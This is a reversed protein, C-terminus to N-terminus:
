DFLEPDFNVLSIFLSDLCLHSHVLLDLLKVTGWFYLNDELLILRGDSCQEIKQQSSAEEGDSLLFVVGLNYELGPMVEVEDELDVGKDRICLFEGLYEPLERLVFLHVFIVLYAQCVILKLLCKQTHHYLMFANEVLQGLLDLIVHGTPLYICHHLLIDFLLLFILKFLGLLDVHAADHLLFIDFLIDCVM